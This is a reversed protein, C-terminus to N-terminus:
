ISIVDKTEHYHETIKRSNREGGREGVVSCACVCVSNLRDSTSSMKLLSAFTRLRQSRKHIASDQEPNEIKHGPQNLLQIDLPPNRNNKSSIGLVKQQDLMQKM